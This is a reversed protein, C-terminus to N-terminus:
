VSENFSNALPMSVVPRPPASKYQLCYICQQSISVIEKELLKDNIGANRILKILRDSTPHGFQRHLKNAINRKSQSGSVAMM